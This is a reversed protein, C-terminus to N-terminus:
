CRALELEESTVCVVTGRENRSWAIPGLSWAGIYNSREKESFIM